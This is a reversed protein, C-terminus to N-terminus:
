EQTMRRIYVTVDHAGIRYANIYPDPDFVPDCYCKELFKLLEQGDPTSFVRRVLEKQENLYLM